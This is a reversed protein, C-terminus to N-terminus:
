LPKSKFLINVTVVFDTFNLEGSRSMEDIFIEFIASQLRVGKDTLRFLPTGDPGTGSQIVYGAKAMLNGVKAWSERVQQIDESDLM